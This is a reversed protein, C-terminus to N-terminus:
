RRTLRATPHLKFWEAIKWQQDFGMNRIDLFFELGKSKQVPRELDTAGSKLSGSPGNVLKKEVEQELHARVMEDARLVAMQSNDSFFDTDVVTDKTLGVMAWKAEDMNSANKLLQQQLNYFATLEYQTPNINAFANTLRGMTMDEEGKRLLRGLIFVEKLSLEFPNMKAIAEKVDAQIAQVSLISCLASASILKM